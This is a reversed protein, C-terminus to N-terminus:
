PRAYRLHVVGNDFTHTSKLRLPVAGGDREPFLPVGRGIRVPHVYISYADVLDHALFTAALRAGGLLLDAGEAAKLAAVEEPVVERVITANAGVRQLTRSYVYKPTDRWIGAFDALMQADPDATTDAGTDVTSWFDEMVGYTVRGQLFAGVGRTEDNAHRNVADDVVHWDIEGDPGAIYGDLSIGTMLIIQRM